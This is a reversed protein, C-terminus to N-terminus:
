RSCLGGQRGWQLNSHSPLKKESGLLVVNLLQVYAYSHTESQAQEGWFKMGPVCVHM